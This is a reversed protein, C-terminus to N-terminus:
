DVVKAGVAAETMKVDETGEKKTEKKKGVHSALAGAIDEESCKAERFKAVADDLLAQWEKGQGARVQSQEYLVNGWMVLVQSRVLMEDPVGNKDDGQKAKTDTETSKEQSEMKSDVKAAPATTKKESEGESKVAEKDVVEKADVPILTLAEELKAQAAGFLEEVEEPTATPGKYEKKESNNVTSSLLKAREFLQQGSAIIAEYFDPKLELAKKYKEEADNYHKEAEECTEKAPATTENVGDFLRRAQCMHVNGWNLLALAAVEQFKSAAQEFLPGAKDSGVAAELAQNCKELGENHLDVHGDADIGLHERFLEAFDLLWDDFEVVEETEGEGRERVVTLQISPPSHPALGLGGLGAPGGKSKSAALAASTTVAALMDQRTTITVLDGERDKYKLLLSGAEEPFKRKVATLLETFNLSTPIQVARTDTGLTCKFTLSQVLKRAPMSNGNSAPASPPASVPTATRSRNLKNKKGSNAILSKVRTELEEAEKIEPSDKEQTLLRVDALAKQYDGSLEHAHARRLIAKGFKPSAQLAVNCEHIVEAYQQDRYYCAARNSHFVARDAHSEPILRLAQNYCALAQVHERKDFHVNGQVKLEHARVLFAEDDSTNKIADTPSVGEAGTKVKKNSKSKGM